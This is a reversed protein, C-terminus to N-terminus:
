AYKKYNVHEAWRESHLIELRKVSQELTKLIHGVGRSMHNHSAIASNYDRASCIRKYRKNFVHEFNASKCIMRM